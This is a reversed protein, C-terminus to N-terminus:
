PMTALIARFAGRCTVLGDSGFPRGGVRGEANAVYLTGATLAVRWTKPVVWHSTCLGDPASVDDRYAAALQLDAVLEDAAPAQGPVTAPAHPSLIQPPGAATSSVTVPQGNADWGTVRASGLGCWIASTDRLQITGFDNGAGAGGPLYEIGLQNLRCFPEKRTAIVVDLEKGLMSGAELLVTGPPNRSDRIEGGQALTFGASRAAANAATLSGGLVDPPLTGQGAVLSM